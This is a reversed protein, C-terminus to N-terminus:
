SSKVLRSTEDRRCALINILTGIKPRRDLWSPFASGAFSHSIPDFGHRRLFEEADAISAEFTSHELYRFVPRSLVQSSMAYATKFFRRALSRRNPISLLLLGGPRIVRSFEAICRDPSATYELVSACLVGHCSHNAVPLHEITDILHFSCSNSRASKIATRSAIAIMDASADFGIVHCGRESLKRSLTGTGCGADIWTQESPSLPQPPMKLDDLLRFMAETRRRFVRSQHLTEWTHAIEDHFQIEPRDHMPEDAM